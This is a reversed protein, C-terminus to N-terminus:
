WKKLFTLTSKTGAITLYIAKTGSPETGTTYTYTDKKALEDPRMDRDEETNGARTRKYHSSVPTTTITKAADSVTYTGKTLSQHYTAGTINTAQSTFYQEYTGNPKFVFAIAMSFANGLYTRPATSWYETMSFNGYMWSGQIESPMPSATTNVPMKVPLAKTNKQALLSITLLIGLPLVILKKM